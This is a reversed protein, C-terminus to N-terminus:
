GEQNNPDDDAAASPLLTRIQDDLLSSGAVKAFKASMGGAGHDFWEDQFDPNELDKWDPLSQVNPLFHSVTMIGTSVPDPGDPSFM